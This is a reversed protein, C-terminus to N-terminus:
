RQGSNRLGAAASQRAALGLRLIAVLVTVLVAILRKSLPKM